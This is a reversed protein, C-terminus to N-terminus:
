EDSTNVLRSTNVLFLIVMALASVVCFPCIAELIAVEVYTLYGSIIVGALTVGFLLMPANNEWFVSRTEVWLLSIISLYAGVGFLAIPIGIFESYISNNVSWCDGLGELCMGQNNTFKMVTLYISTVLGIFATM